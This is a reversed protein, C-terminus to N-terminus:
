KSQEMGSSPESYEALVPKVYYWSTKDSSQCAVQTTAQAFILKRCTKGNAAFFPASLQAYSSQVTIQTKSDADSFQSWLSEPVLTEQTEFDHEVLPRSAIPQDIGACGALVSVSLLICSINKMRLM